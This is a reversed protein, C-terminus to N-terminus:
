VGAEPIMLYNEKVSLSGIKPTRPKRRISAEQEAEDKSYLHTVSQSLQTYNPSSKRM